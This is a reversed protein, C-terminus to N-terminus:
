TRTLHHSSTTTTATPAAAHHPAPPPKTTTTSDADYTYSTAASGPNTSGLPRSLSDYTFTRPRWMTSDSPASGKQDVRLLNDLTDYQYDTEFNLGGPDEWVASLRGLGDNCSKRKRGAEDIVVTCSPATTYDMTRFSGDPRTAKLLRGLADYQM